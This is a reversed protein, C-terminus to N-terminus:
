SRQSRRHRARVAEVQQGLDAHVVVAVDLAGLVHEPRGRLAPEVGRLELVPDNVLQEGGVYGVSRVLPRAVLVVQELREAEIEALQRLEAHQCRLEADLEDDRGVALPRTGVHQREIGLPQLDTRAVGLVRPKEVRGDHERSGNIM